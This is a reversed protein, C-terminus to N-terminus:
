SVIRVFVGGPAGAGALAGNVFATNYGNAAAGGAGGGGGGPAQGAEGSSGGASSGSTLFGGNGGRGGLRAGNTGQKLSDHSGAGGRGGTGGGLPTSVELPLVSSSGGASSQGMFSTAGGSSGASPGSGVLQRAGAAGGAGITLTYNTNASASVTVNRILGGEGGPSGQSTGATYSNVGSGGQAGSGGGILGLDVTHDEGYQYTGSSLLAIIEGVPVVDMVIDISTLNDQNLGALTFNTDRFDVKDTIVTAKRGNLGYGQVVGNADTTLTAGQLTSIGAVKAGVVPNGKPTTVTVKVEGSFIAPRYFVLARYSVGSTAFGAAAGSTTYFSVANSAWVVTLMDQSNVGNFYMWSTSAKLFFGYTSIDRLSTVGSGQRSVFMLMPEGDVSIVRPKAAAIGTSNDGVWDVTTCVLGGALLGTLQQVDGQVMLLDDRSGIDVWEFGNHYQLAGDHPRFGHVGTKTGALEEVHSAVTGSLAPHANPDVDHIDILRQAEGSIIASSAGRFYEEVDDATMFAEPAYNVEVNLEDTLAITVPFRRVDVSDDDFKSVHQPYEGLSGYYLLVEGEDPDIAFVGFENLWFGNELGGNLDNRYEVVFSCTKGSIQPITSTALAEPRVLDTLAKPDMGDALKGSGVMVRSLTLTKGALLKTLLNWGLTPIIFGYM